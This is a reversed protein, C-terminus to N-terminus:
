THQHLFNASQTYLNEALDDIVEGKSKLTILLESDQLREM